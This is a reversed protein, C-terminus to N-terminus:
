VLDNEYAFATAAARTSVELKHFINSVHRDITRESLCLEGAITKNTKGRAVLRLVELERPSLGAPNETSAPLPAADLAALDPAAGLDEFVQRATHRELEAGDRDGLSEYARALLVRIRAALYPAGLSQWCSFAHGLPEVAAGPDGEALSVAGRAQAALAGLIETDFRHALQELETAATRADDIEKAALLIEVCAPLFQPRRWAVSTTALVRRIASVADATRGQALRLLALGPQPERGVQSAHRYAEEAEPLEGRLRHLEAREYCADGLAQPDKTTVRECARKAEELAETWNGSMQLIQSRHVLCAGAFSALQPEGDCWTALASTWERSRDLAMAQQCSAIASCYVLGTVLPSLEGSAVAIMSEDIVAMGREIDGRRLLARGQFQRAFAVLDAEGFQEGIAVAQAAVDHATDFDGAGLHRAVMPLLLYGREVCDGDVRDLSRQARTLWGAGRGAEGMAMLRLAVWFGWRAARAHAATEDCYRYLQEVRELCEDDRGSLAAAWALLEVDDPELPADRDARSLAEFADAWEHQRYCLRGRELAESTAPREGGM